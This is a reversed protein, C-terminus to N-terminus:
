LMQRQAMHAFLGQRGILEQYNGAEVIEGRDVVYVRDADQITSLRHAVVIRTSKLKKLSENVIAQTRNDLAATAEDFILIRPRSVIARAIMLRQRQGGSLTTGGEMVVTHMGMPMQKIDEELGAMRAAEWADEITLNRAGVINSFISGPMLNAGQMVVGMNRRICSLDMEALDQDDYYVAGSTPIEFGLLLRLLTSKGSGSPGVIAIFEGPEIRLSIDKLIMPGDATYRFFAHCVEIRGMLEGPDNKGLDVEPTAELIPKARRYLPGVQALAGVATVMQVVAAGLAAWAANFSMFDGMKLTTPDDMFLGIWGFIAILSVLPFVTIFTVQVNALMGARFTLKKQRSFDRAWIAFARNESGAVRLKSIGIIFQLVKGSLRGQIESIEGYYRAQLWQLAIVVLSAVALSVTVVWALEWQYYFLLPFNLLSFIFAAATPLVASSSVIQRIMALSMGRMALDGATYSRFFPIPLRMIRDWMATELAYAARVEIRLLGMNRPIEFLLNTISFAVLIGVIQLLMFRQAQPIVSEFIYGTFIPVALACLGIISGVIFARWLDSRAGMLAFKLLQRGTVPEPDFHRYLTFAFPSLQAALKRDVIQSAGQSPDVMQYRGKALPLLAVPGQDAEVFGILPGNDEKWWEERLAVRRLNVRSGRLIEEVSATRGAQRRGRAPVRLEIGLREAVLSCCAFARDDSAGAASFPLKGMIGALEAFGARGAQREAEAKELLLNYDDAASLGTNLILIQFAKEHFFELSRWISGAELLDRTSYLAMRCDTLTQLWSKPNLPLLCPDPGLEETGLYLWQGSQAQTWLVADAPYGTKEAAVPTEASAALLIDPKPRPVIDKTLGKLLGTVWDDLGAMVQDRLDDQRALEAFRSVHLRAVRTGPFGVAQFAHGSGYEELNMGFLCQGEKASFFHDKRGAIRGGECKAAFVEVSGALVLWVNESGALLFPSNGGVVAVAGEAEFVERLRENAIQNEIGPYAM